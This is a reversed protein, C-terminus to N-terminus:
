QGRRIRRWREIDMLVQNANCEAEPRKPSSPQITMMEQLARELRAVVFELEKTYEGMM